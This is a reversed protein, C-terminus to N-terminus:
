AIPYSGLKSPHQNDDALLQNGPNAKRTEEFARGIPVIQVSDEEMIETCLRAYIGLEQESNILEDSCSYGPDKSAPNPFCYTKPYEYTPYPQYFLLKGGSMDAAKRFAHIIEFFDERLHPILMRVTAEQLIVYDFHVTEFTKETLVFPTVSGWVDILKEQILKDKAPEFKQQHNGRYNLIDNIQSKLNMGPDTRQYVRVAKGSEEFMKQVMGPMRNYYTLSNGIFLIRTTDQAHSNIKLLLFLVAFSNKLM